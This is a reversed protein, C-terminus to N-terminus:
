RQILGDDVYIRFDKIRGGVNGAGPRPVYRFGALTATRGLDIVLRHPHGPRDDSWQTHWFSATQGDIANEATGDERSQEESDAYAITWGAQNLLKGSPDILSLEAIAAFPMGDHASVTEICFYRGTSPKSFRIEQLEAGAPFRGELMPKRNEIALRVGPRRNRAFDLAPRLQDLIPLTLGAVFPKEPSLLDLIVVENRGPKLWPGPLYMTQTPGINWYRGLCHGNVWAVGKGWPRVDLFTDGPEPVDITARWFAPGQAQCPSYRLNARMAEDLRLPFIQWGTLEIAPGGASTLRVPGHLGKRDHVEVGFNVRGM